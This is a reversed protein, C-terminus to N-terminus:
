FVIVIGCYPYMWLCPKILQYSRNHNSSVAEGQFFSTFSYIAEFLACWGDSWTFKKRAKKQGPKKREVMRPDRVLLGDKKNNNTNMFLYHNQLYAGSCLAGAELKDGHDGPFALMAKSIGLRIAGAQGLSGAGGCSGYLVKISMIWTAFEGTSGGGWVKATVNYAGLIDLRMFPYLVQHRHEVRPFYEILPVGNVMVAGHGKKVMVRATSTKRRGLATAEGSSNLQPIKAHTRYVFVPRRYRDLFAKIQSSQPHEALKVLRKILDGYQHSVCFLIM